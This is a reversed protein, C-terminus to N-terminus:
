ERTITVSKTATRGLADTLKVQVRNSGESLGAIAKWKAATKIRRFAKSGIKMEIKSIGAEASATGRVIATPRTTTFRRKGSITLVPRKLPVVLRFIVDRDIGAGGVTSGFFTGPSVEVLDNFPHASTTGDFTHLLRFDTGSKAISFLTGAAASGGNLCAGYLRGDIGEVLGSQPNIGDNPSTNSFAKLVVFGTGDPNLGFLTGGSNAGGTNAAGYLKGDSAQLLGAILEGGDTAPTMQRIVQFNNGDTDIRFITGGANTGGLRNVGYLRGDTGQILPAISDSGDAGENAFLKLTVFGGGNKDVRFITGGGAPGGQSVIGYLKGDSGELLSSQGDAGEFGTSSFERLVTYGTGAKTISYLVGSTNTPTGGSSTIGYLLGDSGEIPAAAPRSGTGTAFNHITSFGTGSPNLSFLTGVGNSGGDFASGYVTGNSGLILRSNFGHGDVGSGNKFVTYTQSRSLAPSLVVLLIGLFLRASM